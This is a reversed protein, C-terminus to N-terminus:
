KGKKECQNACRVEGPNNYTKYDSACVPYFEKTNICPCETKNTIETTSEQASIFFM